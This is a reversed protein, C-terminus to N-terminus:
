REDDSEYGVNLEDLKRKIEETDINLDDARIADADFENLGARANDKARRKKLKKMKPQVQVKDKEVVGRRGNDDELTVSDEDEKIVDYKVRRKLSFGNELPPLDERGYAVHTIVQDEKASDEDESSESMAQVHPVAM